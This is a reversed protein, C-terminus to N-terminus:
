GDKRRGVLGMVEARLAADKEFAGTFSQTTMTGPHNVGRIEMCYHSAQIIVAVGRPQLKDSLFRAIQQGLLEQLQPRRAFHNVAKSLKSLGCLTQGPLYAVTAQGSFPLLHHACLSKVPIDDLAVMATQMGEELPFVDLEPEPNTLGACIEDHLTEATRRPTDALHPNDSDLGLGELILRVGAELKDRDM